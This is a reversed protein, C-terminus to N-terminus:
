TRGAAHTAVDAAHETSVFLTTIPIGTAAAITVNEANFTRMMVVEAEGSARVATAKFRHLTDNAHASITTAGDLPARSSRETAAAPNNNNNAPSREYVGVSPSYLSSRRRVFATPKTTTTM